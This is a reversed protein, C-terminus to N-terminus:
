FKNENKWNWNILQILIRKFNFNFNTPNLSSQNNTWAESNSNLDNLQQLIYRYENRPSSM